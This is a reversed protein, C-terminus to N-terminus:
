LCFIILGIEITELGDTADKHVQLMLLNNLRKWDYNVTLIHSPSVTHFASEQFHSFHDTSYIYKLSKYTEQSHIANAITRINTVKHVSPTGSKIMDALFSLKVNLSSFWLLNQLM